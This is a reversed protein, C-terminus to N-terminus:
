RIHIPPELHAPDIDPLGDDFPPRFVFPDDNLIRRHGTSDGLVANTPDAIIVSFTKDAEFPNGGIVNVRTVSANSGLSITHTTTGLPEYDAGAADTDNVTFVEFSVDAASQNSLVDTLTVQKTAGLAGEEVSTSNISLTHAIHRPV